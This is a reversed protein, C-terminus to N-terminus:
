YDDDDDSDSTLKIALRARASPSLGLDTGFSRLNKTCTDMQKNLPNGYIEPEISIPQGSEEYEKKQRKYEKKHAAKMRKLQKNMQVYQSYWDCYLTMAISDPNEILDVTLLESKIFEFTQKGLADLWPPANIEDNKMKLKDESEARRKLEEKSKKNPNRKLLQLRASTVRQALM